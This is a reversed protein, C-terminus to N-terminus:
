KSKEGKALLLFNIISVPVMSLIDALQWNLAAFAFSLGQFGEVAVNEFGTEKMFSQLRSATFHSIHQHEYNIKGRRNVFYELLPWLGAYNPTTVLCMGGPEMIRHIETLLKCGQGRTLHEIVEILTVVDFSADNFPLSGETIPLFHKRPKGYKQNAYLIQDKAIDVGVSLRSGNMSGILTGPGCGIDLHRKFRSIERRVRDFKLIHWKSQIGSNKQYIKDYYGIEISDYEYEKCKQTTNM